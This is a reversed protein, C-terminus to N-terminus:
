VQEKLMYPKFVGEIETQLDLYKPYGKDLCRELRLEAWKAAVGEQMYSLVTGVKARDTKIKNPQMEIYNRMQVWWTRFKKPFGDYQPPKAVKVDDEGDSHRAQPEGETAITIQHLAPASAM